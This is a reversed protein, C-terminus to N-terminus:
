RYIKLTHENSARTIPLSSSLTCKNNTGNSFVSIEDGANWVISNSAGISARTSEGDDAIPATFCVNGKVPLTEDAIPEEVAAEKSCAGFVMAGTLLALITKIKIDMTSELVTNVM